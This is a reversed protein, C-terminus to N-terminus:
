RAPLEPVAHIIEQVITATSVGGAEAEFNRIVRHRL